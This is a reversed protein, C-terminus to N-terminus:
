CRQMRTRRCGADTCVCCWLHTLCIQLQSIRGCARPIWDPPLQRSTNGRGGAAGVGFVRVMDTRWGQMASIGFKYHDNEGEESEQLHPSCPSPAGAAHAACPAPLQRPRGATPGGTIVAAQLSGGATGSRHLPVRVPGASRTACQAVSTLVWQTM